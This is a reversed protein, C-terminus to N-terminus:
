KEKATIVVESRSSGPVPQIRMSFLKGELFNTSKVFARRILEKEAHAMRQQFYERALFVEDDTMAALMWQDETVNAELKTAM